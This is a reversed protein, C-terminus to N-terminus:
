VFPWFVYLIKSLDGPGSLNLTSSLQSKHLAAPSWRQMPNVFVANLSMVLVYWGFLRKRNSAVRAGM